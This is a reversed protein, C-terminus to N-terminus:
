HRSAVAGSSLQEVVATAVADAVAGQYAPTALLKAERPNSVFSTEVLVAPMRAGLLVYFLSPKVGLDRAEPNHRRVKSYLGRQVREALAKSERSTVKTALDALILQVESVHEEHTSNERAALRLAYRDDTTDLYYTEVGAVQRNGHANAHISVFVEAGARNAIATREELSLTSDADRTLVVDIGRENLRRELARAIALVVDKEKVGGHGRAGSDQGGHGPDVVVVRKRKAVGRTLAVSEAAAAHADVVIRYPEELVLLRPEAAARLDLHLRLKGGTATLTAAALLGPDSPAVRTEVGAAVSAADIAIDVSTVGGQAPPAWAMAPGSLYLVVRSYGKEHWAKIATVTPPPRGEDRRGVLEHGVDRAPADGRLRGGLDTLSRRAVAAKDGDGYRDVIQGLAARAAQRDSRRRILLQASEFLADDALTATPFREAVRGYAALAQDLDSGRLSVQHLDSWLEASTYIARAAEPSGPHDSAVAQFAVIAKLWHHRYRQRAPDAKVAYYLARAREYARSAASPAADAGDSAFSVLVAVALARVV